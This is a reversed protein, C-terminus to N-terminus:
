GPFPPHASLRDLFAGVAGRMQALWLQPDSELSPLNLRIGITGPLIDLPIDPSLIGVWRPSPVAHPGTAPLPSPKGYALDLGDRALADVMVEDLGSDPSIGASSVVVKGQLAEQALAAAAPGRCADRHSVLLIRGPDMWPATIQAAVQELRAQLGDVQRIDGAKEVHRHTLAHDFRASVADFFYRATLDMGEFLRQGGSAAVGLLIGHRQAARPHSLGMKYKRGWFMQCRDILVKLQATVNYFFVPSALVIADARYIKAYIREMEDKLPCIGRSECVLLERCPTLNLEPARIEEVEAGRERCAALFRTLLYATNGNKRPSGQIGLIYM